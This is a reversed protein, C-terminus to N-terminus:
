IGYHVFNIWRELPVRKRRLLRVAKVLAKASDRCDVQELGNRFMHEYFEKAVMPGDEDTMAWMTGIVDRFGAFLMGATLHIVEDPTSKDGAASHCASLVALEAHPLGHKIIDLLTLSEKPTHLLFHSKFPETLHQKGHCAFHAWATKAMGGLVVDRTCEDEEVITVQGPLLRMVAVEHPVQPLPPAGQAASQAVVLIPPGSARKLPRYGARARRLSSITPAYSSVFLDALNRGGPNYSGAAHLPLQCAFSTPIWWLHSGLPLRLKTSLHSVIPQAISRWIDQLINSLIRDSEYPEPRTTTTRNLTRVLAEVAAPTADPLPISVPEVTKHIIIADSGYQSINVLVVPGDSAAERLQSFPTVRLFNEFGKLLRIEALTREWAAALKQRRGVQDGVSAEGEMGAEDSLTSAELAVSLTRFQNTLSSSETELDDLCTKYKGLQTFLLARGREFVEVATNLQRNKIAYATADETIARRQDKFRGRALRAHSDSMSSAALLLSRDLLDMASAYANGLSEDSQEVASDIWNNSALLRDALPSLDHEAAEGYCQFSNKRDATDSTRRFRAYLATGINNLTVSRRPHGIPCLLLADQYHQISAGLDKMDSTQGFRAYISIGLNNLTMSREPHGTPRLTLAEQHYQISALLYTMDSALGFRSYLATGLNNLTTSRDPHGKPRLSLAEEHYEISAVLDAVEGSQGFRIYLAGGLNNLTASRDPHGTPRLPLAEQLYRISATLDAMDGTQGFRAYLVLGLNGLTMSRDPHGTPRLPLADQHYEMSAVLDAMDGTQKFREYLANGLNNLTMSRNPDDIPRFLLAEQHHKINSILDSIDGTQGFRTYLVSAINNLTTPLFPHGIPHLPLAEEYYQISAALDAMDGTQGFRTYLAEGLNDLTASRYPNGLPRLLLAEQHHKISTVLDAMDGTRGFRVYLASGLHNLTASRDGISCLSLAATYKEICKCLTDYNYSTEFEDWLYMAALFISDVDAESERQRTCWGLDSQDQEITELAPGIDADLIVSQPSLHTKPVIPLAKSDWIASAGHRRPTSNATPSNPVPMQNYRAEGASGNSVAENRPNSRIHPPQPFALADLRARSARSTTRGLMQRLYPPSMREATSMPESSTLNEGQAIIEIAQAYVDRAVGSPNKLSSHRTANEPRQPQVSHDGETRSPGAVGNDEGPRIANWLPSRPSNPHVLDDTHETGNPDGQVETRWPGPALGDTKRLPHGLSLWAYRAKEEVLMSKRLKKEWARAKIIFAECATDLMASRAAEPHHIFAEEIYEFTMLFMEVSTKSAQLAQMRWLAYMALPRYATTSTAPPLLPGSRQAEDVIRRAATAAGPNPRPTYREM